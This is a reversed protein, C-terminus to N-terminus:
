FQHYLFPQRVDRHRDAVSTTTLGLETRPKALKGPDAMVYQRRKSAESDIIYHFHLLLGWGRKNKGQINV